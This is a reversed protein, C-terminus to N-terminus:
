SNFRADLLHVAQVRLKQLARTRVQRVRGRSAGPQKAPTQAPRDADSGIGFRTRVIQQERPSLISLLKHIEERLDSDMVAELPSSSTEDAILDAISMKDDLGIPADLSVTEVVNLSRQIQELSMQTHAALEEPSPERGLRHSLLGRARLLRSIATVMHSPIRITRGHDIIAGIMAHKIWWTAYTSFKVERRHDFKQAARMLGINGEQILDLFGLGRNWYRRALSVVLGLNAETLEKTARAMRNEAEKMAQLSRALAGNRTECARDAQSHSPGSVSLRLEAIILERVQPSLSIPGSQEQKQGAAQWREQFGDSVPWMGRRRLATALCRLEERLKELKPTLSRPGNPLTEDSTLGGEFAEFDDGRDSDQDEVSDSEIRESVRIVCDLIGPANLLQDDLDGGAAAIRKAVELEEDRTLPKLNRIESLYLRVPDLQSRGKFENEVLEDPEKEGDSDVFEHNQAIKMAPQLNSSCRSISISVPKALVRSEADTSTGVTAREKRGIREVEM